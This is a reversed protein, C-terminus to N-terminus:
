FVLTLPAPGDAGVVSLTSPDIVVSAHDFTTGALAPDLGLPLSVTARAEGLADAPTLVSSIPYAGALALNTTADLTIPVTLPGLPTSGPAGPLFVVLALPLGTRATLDFSGGAALSVDEDCGTLGGLSTALDYVYIAGTQFSAFGFDGVAEEPAGVILQGDALALTAGLGPRVSDTPPLLRATEVWAGGIREFRDIAGTATGLPGANPRGVWAVDGDLAVASGFNDAAGLEIPALEAPPTTLDALDYVWATGATAGVGPKVGPAGVLLRQGELALASGFFSGIGLPPSPISAFTSFVNGDFTQVEVRGAFPSTADALPGGIAIHDGDAALASGYRAGVSLVEPVLFATPFLAGGVDEYVYVAGSDTGLLDNGPSGVVLRNGMWAVAEGFRDLGTPTPLTLREREVWAGNVQEFVFVSGDDLVFDSDAGPSGIALLDGRFAVSVGFDDLSTGLPNDITASEVWQDGVREFVTVQGEFQASFESLDARPAGVAMRSGDISVAAGLQDNGDTTTTQFRELGCQAEAPLSCALAIAAAGALEPGFRRLLDQLTM